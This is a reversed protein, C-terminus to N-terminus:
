LGLAKMKATLVKYGIQLRDAARPGDGNVEALAQRIAQREAEAVARSRIEALSGSLDLQTAPPEPRSLEEAMLNLHKPFITDGDALIVARELCNQLERV